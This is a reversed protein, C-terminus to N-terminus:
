LRAAAGSAVAADLLAKVGREAHRSAEAQRAGLESQQRALEAQRRGLEGQRQGLTKQRAGIEDRERGQAASEGGPGGDLARQAAALAVRAQREGLEGQEKGLAAQQEGLDGQRQGLAGQQEGLRVVPEFLADFRRLVDRDRVLYRADGRRLWLAQADGAARRAQKLDDMAGNMVVGDSGDRIRVYALTPGPGSLEIRGMVNEALPAPAQAAADAAIAVPATAAPAAVLRLPAVGVAAVLALLAYTGARPFSATNQQLMTLRRKLSRFTPSAGALGAHPRPLTGLRVLLRGYGHRQRLDGAVVAADCAAERAIGYERAAVHVLPHFFFLHRALAPIWGWWLDGRALHALEHTLVMDLEDDGLTADAPLLLVPRWPGILRASCIRDSVRVRPARRLGHAEAALALARVLAADACPAAGDLWARTRRWERLTTAGLVLVGAAWLLVIAAQWAPLAHTAALAGAAPEAAVEVVVSSPAVIEVHAPAQPLWPLELPGAFLGLLVQLAVLWWLWCQTAAPLRPLLRCVGAVLAVLLMTQVSTALLRELWYAAFADM